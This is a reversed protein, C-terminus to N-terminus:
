DHLSSSRKERVALRRAYVLMGAVILGSLVLSSGTAWDGPLWWAEDLPWWDPAPPSLIWLVGFGILWAVGFLSLLLRPWTRMGEVAGQKAREFVPDVRKEAWEYQQSLVALGAALLLLGPGPLILAAIGLLVLAWGLIELLVRKGAAGIGM